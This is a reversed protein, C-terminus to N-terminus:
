GEKEEDKELYKRDGSDIWLLFNNIETDTWGKERLGIIIRTTDKSTMEEM